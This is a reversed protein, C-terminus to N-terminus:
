FKYGAGLGIINSGAAAGVVPSSELHRYELSFLLYASPSYIVNGTYTRNRALNQYVSGGPVYYPRLESAFVNDIGFAANIQVRQNFKEKLQAWGGVDDLPRFYFEGTVLDNYFAIDKYAGGGMGGLAAGRYFSGTFQLRAPFVYNTDLTAAWSDFGHGVIRHPAFFGGVGLQNSEEETTGRSGLVAVRAEVGPWHSLEATNPPIGGAPYLVPTVPADAVEILAAQLRFDRANDSKFDQTVGEQPTWAWLNGSWALAPEAVATLSTPYDPSTIPRDLSFYANSHEWQLGAHVTRLRLLTANGSYFGSYTAATSSSEPIGDFDVRVDAYSSAGFLHPGRADLGILTQQVSAGTTGPGKLAVTPTAPMDVAGTNVFGNMLVLGTLKVPYKSVSEVKSQALTAIQSEQLAQRERIDEIAAGMNRSESQASTAPDSEASTPSPVVSSPESGSLAVQRQLAALQKRMEDLERQSAQVQAQTQEMANTLMQIQQAVTQQTTAQAGLLHLSCGILAVSISLHRVKRAADCAAQRRYEYTRM